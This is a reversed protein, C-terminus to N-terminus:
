VRATEGPSSLHTASRGCPPRPSTVKLLRVEVLRGQEMPWLLSRNARLGLLAAGFRTGVGLRSGVAETGHVLTAKLTRGQISFTIDSGRRALAGDGPLDPNRAMALKASLLRAILEDDMGLVVGRLYRADGRDIEVDLDKHLASWIRVLSDIVSPCIADM